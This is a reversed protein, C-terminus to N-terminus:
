RRRSAIQFSHLARAHDAIGSRAAARYAGEPMLRGMVVLDDPLDIDYATGPAVHVATRLGRENARRRHAAFSDGMGFETPMTVDRAFGIANTGSGHADPAIVVDAADLAALLKAVDDGRVLPLDAMLVLAATPASQRVAGLGADVAIRLPPEGADRVVLAGRARALAEVDDDDTVVMVGDIGPADRLVGLVHELMARAVAVRSPGDLAPELRTKARAFGKAPVVAWAKV